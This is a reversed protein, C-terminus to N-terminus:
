TPDAGARLVSLVASEEAPDRFAPPGQTLPYLVARAAAYPEPWLAARLVQAFWGLMHAATREDDTMNPRDLPANLSVGARRSDRLWSHVHRGLESTSSVSVPEGREAAAVAEALGPTGDVGLISAVRMTERAAVSRLVHPPAADVAEIMEPAALGHGLPPEAASFWPEIEASMLRGSLVDPHPLEGTILGALLLAPAHPWSAFDDEDDLEQDLGATRMKGLLRDPESGWRGGPWTPEFATVLAGDVAYGFGHEAYDHRLVSVAETGLSLARLLGVVSGQFGGPEILVTWAGLDLALAVDAYGAEYSGYMESAEQQTRPRITDRLGGLRLLAETEGVGKIFTFCYIENFSEVWKIDDYSVNLM